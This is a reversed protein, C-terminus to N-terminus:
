PEALVSALGAVVKAGPAAVKPKVAPPKWPSVTVTISESPAAGGESKGKEGGEETRCYPSLWKAKLYEAKRWPPFHLGKKKMSQRAAEAVVAIIQGVRDAKGVLVTPLSQLVARYTKTSRAIEFESRFDVDILVREDGAIVDIYEYEGAPIMGKREWRSKCISVDYGLSRLGDVVIRRCEAKRKGPVALRSAHSSLNRELPSVCPVLGKLIEAASVPPPADAGADEDDSSDDFNGNFCNCRRRGQTKENGEELYNLVMRDLIVSNPEVVGDGGDGALRESSSIRQFQRELLRKLRSKGFHKAPESRVSSKADIPQIKMPM